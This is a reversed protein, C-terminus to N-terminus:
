LGARKLVRLAAKLGDRERRASKLGHKAAALREALSLVDSTVNVVYEESQKLQEELTRVPDFVKNVVEDKM